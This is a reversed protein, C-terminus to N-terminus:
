KTSKEKQDTKAKKDPKIYECGAADLKAKASKSYFDAAIKLAKSIEGKSLIKFSGADKKVIKKAQLTSLDVVENAKFDAFDSINVIAPRDVWHRTFGGKKPLRRFLPINNGEFFSRHKKGTRAKQGKHGRGATKGHGSGPGRAIRKKPKVIRSKLIPYPM